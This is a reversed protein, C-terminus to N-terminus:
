GRALDGGWRALREGQDKRTMLPKSKTEGPSCLLDYEKAEVM